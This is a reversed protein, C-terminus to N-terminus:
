ASGGGKQGRVSSPREDGAASRSREVLYLQRVSRPARVESDWACPLSGREGFPRKTALRTLGCGHVRTFLNLPKM